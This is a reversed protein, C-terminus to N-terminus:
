FDSILTDARAAGSATLSSSDGTEPKQPHAPLKPKGRNTSADGWDRGEGGCPTM